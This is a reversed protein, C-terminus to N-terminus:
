GYRKFGTIKGFRLWAGNVFRLFYLFRCLDQVSDFAVTTIIFRVTGNLFRPTEVGRYYPGYTSPVAIRAVLHRPLYSFNIRLPYMIRTFMRFSMIRVDAFVTATTHQTSVNRYVSLVIM